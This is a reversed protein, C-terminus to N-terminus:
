AGRAEVGSSVGAGRGRLRGLWRNLVNGRRLFGFVPKRRVGLGGLEDLIAPNRPDIMLGRRLFRIGEAKFGFALHLRALNHYLAPNFFEEKAASRCLDLARDFRREALGLCLGFYSRYRPSTPDLRHAARFHELAADIRERELESRGECFHEEASFTADMAIRAELPGVAPIPTQLGMALLTGLIV